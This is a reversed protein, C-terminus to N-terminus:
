EVTTTKEPENTTEEGSDLTHILPTRFKFEIEDTWRDSIDRKLELPKLILDQFPKMLSMEINFAVRKDSGSGSGMKKGPGNGVIAPDIGMAYLLHASAEQSDEIYIGDKLKDDLAEIEWGGYYAKSHPDWHASLMFTKGANEAGKIFKDFAELEKKKLKVKDEEQLGDWKPYRRQWWSEDIRILYKITMQNKLLSKKFEAIALSVDLWGSDRVSDWDALHYFKQGIGPYSLPFIWNSNKTNGKIQGVADFYPNIVPLKKTTKGSGDPAASEWDADIYCREVIGKDNQWEYRCEMSRQVDIDAIDSYDVNMRIEPFVNRFWMFELSSRMLYANFNIRRIFDRFMIRDKGRLPVFVDDNGNEVMTGAVVGGAYLMRAKKDLTSPIITSKKVEKYVNQPFLNDDGWPCLKGKERELVVTTTQPKKPRDRKDVMMVGSAPSYLTSVSNQTHVLIEIM